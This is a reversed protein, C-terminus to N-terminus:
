DEGEQERLKRQVEEHRRMMDEAWKQSEEDKRKRREYDEQRKREAIENLRDQAVKGLLWNLPVRKQEWNLYDRFDNPSRKSTDFYDSGTNYYGKTGYESGVEGSFLEGGWKSGEYDPNKQELNLPPAYNGRMTADYDSQMFADAIARTVPDYLAKPKPVRKRAVGVQTPGKLKVYNEVGWVRPNFEIGQANAWREFAQRFDNPIEVASDKEDEGYGRRKFPSDRGTYAEYEGSAMLENIIEQRMEEMKDSYADYAAKDRNYEDEDVYNSWEFTRDVYRPREGFPKMKEELLSSLHEDRFRRRPSVYSKDEVLDNQQAVMNALHQRLEMRGLEMRIDESLDMLRKGKQSDEPLTGDSTKFHRKIADILPKAFKTAQKIRTAHQQERGAVPDMQFDGATTLISYAQGIAANIMNQQIREKAPMLLRKSEPADRSEPPNGMIERLNRTRKGWGLNPSIQGALSKGEIPEEVGAKKQAREVAQLYKRKLSQPVNSHMLWKGRTYGPHHPFETIYASLEDGSSRFDRDPHVGAGIALANADGKLWARLAGPNDLLFGAMSEYPSTRDWAEDSGEKGRENQNFERKAQKQQNALLEKPYLPDDDIDGGYEWYDFPQADKAARRARGIEDYTAQHGGEHMATDLIDMGLVRDRKPEFAPIPRGEADEVLPGVSMESGERPPEREWKSGSEPKPLSRWGSGQAFPELFTLAKGDWSRYHGLYDGSGDETPRRIEFDNMPRDTIDDKVIADWVATFTM